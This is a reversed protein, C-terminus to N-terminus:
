YKANFAHCDMWRFSGSHAISRLQELAVPAKNHVDHFLVIGQRWLLMLTLVRDAVQQASLQQSWDQSDIDWLIVQIGHQLFFPGSDAKRQGYPPRFLPAYSQPATQQILKATDLVSSQWQEWRSHSQHQWGHMGVCQGRYLAAIEEASHQQLRKQLNEGLVFFLAQLDQQRLDALLQDTNGNIPTPGDDFTLLFQGDDFQAGTVEAASFTDIESSIAPFLAALRLLEDLYHQHFRLRPEAIVEQAAQTRLANLSDIKECRQCDKSAHVYNALLRQWYRQRVREVSLANLKKVGLRQALQENSLKESQLLVQAFALIETRSARNYATPSDLSAENLATRDLTAMVKPGAAIAVTSGCLLCFLALLAKM